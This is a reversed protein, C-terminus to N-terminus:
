HWEVHSREREERRKARAAARAHRRADREVKATWLDAVAAACTFLLGMGGVYVLWTAAPSLVM